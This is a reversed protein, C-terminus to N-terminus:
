EDSEARSVEVTATAAAAIEACVAPTAGGVGLAGAFPSGGPLPVAGALTLARFPLVSAADGVQESPLQFAAAAAATAEAVFTGGAPAGDMADIQVPEAYRDVVATSVRLGRRGAEELARDALALAFRLEHQSAAPPPDAFGLGRGADAPFPGYAAEWRALDDGHQGEYPLGLAYHVLLDEANAPKGDAILRERVAGEYDVFPGVGAGSAAIGAVVAGDRVIPVGGAGPFVAEPSLVPFGQAMQPSITLLRQNHVLSPIQQTAAIWAKSRARAFGGAGGRDMRSGSVLAGSAGVVVVAGRANLQEAKDIARSVLRRADALALEEV